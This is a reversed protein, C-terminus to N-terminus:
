KLLYKNVDSRCLYIIYMGSKFQTKHPTLNKKQRLEKIRKSLVEKNYM